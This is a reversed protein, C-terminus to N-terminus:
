FPNTGKTAGPRLRPDPIYSHLDPSLNKFMGVPEALSATAMEAQRMLSEAEKQLSLAETTSDTCGCPTKLGSIRCDAGNAAEKARLDAEIDKRRIEEDM